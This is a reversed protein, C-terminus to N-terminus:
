GTGSSFSFGASLESMELTESAAGPTPSLCSPVEAGRDQPLPSPCDGCGPAFPRARLPQRSMTPSCPDPTLPRREVWLILARELFASFSMPCSSPSELAPVTRHLSPLSIATGGEGEEEEGEWSNPGADSGVSQVIGELARPCPSPSSQALAPPPDRVRDFHNFSARFENMQEQSIGKADRTLIQNEVENITRAITTLLQEWGVRIHQPHALPRDACPGWAQGLTGRAM